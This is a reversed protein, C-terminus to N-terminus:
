ARSAPGTLTRGFPLSAMISVSKDGPPNRPLQWRVADFSPLALRPQFASAVKLGTAPNGTRDIPLRRHVSGNLLNSVGDGCTWGGPYFKAISVRSDLRDNVLFMRNNAM